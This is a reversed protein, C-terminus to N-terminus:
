FVSTLVWCLELNNYELSAVSSRAPFTYDVGTSVIIANGLTAGPSLHKITMAFGSTNILTLRRCEFGGIFSGISFNGTATINLVGKDGININENTTTVAYNGVTRTYVGIVGSIDTGYATFGGANIITFPYTCGIASGGRIVTDIVNQTSPGIIFGYGCNLATNDIFTNFQSAPSAADTIVAYAQMDTGNSICVNGIFSILSSSDSYYAQAGPLSTSTGINFYNGIILINSGSGSGIAGQPTNIIINYAIVHGSGTLGIGSAGNVYTSGPIGLIVCYEIRIATTNVWINIALIDVNTSIPMNKITIRSILSYNVSAWLICNGWGPTCNVPNQNAGNMDITFNGLYINSITGSGPGALIVCATGPGGWQWQTVSDFIGNPIFLISAGQGIIACNAQQYILAYVNITKNPLSVTGGGLGVLAQLAESIGGTATCIQWSGSHAYNCNFIITGSSAGSVATGGAIKVPEPIGSGGSIYLWHNIDTANVGLPVPTLTITNLGPNLVGGPLQCTFNYDDPSLTQQGTIVHTDNWENPGILTPDTQEIKPSIFRHAVTLSM